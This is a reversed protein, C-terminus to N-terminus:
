DVDGLILDPMFKDLTSKRDEVEAMVREYLVSVKYRYSFGLASEKQGKDHPPTLGRSFYQDETIDILHGESTECWWHYEGEDDIARMLKINKTGFIQQLVASAHYCHGAMPNGYNRNLWEKSLLDTTLNNKIVEIIRVLNESNFEM